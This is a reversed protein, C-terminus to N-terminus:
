GCTLMVGRIPGLSYTSESRGSRSIEQIWHLPRRAHPSSAIFRPEGVRRAKHSGGRHPPGSATGRAGSKGSSASFGAGLVPKQTWRFPRARSGLDPRSNRNQLVLFCTAFRYIEQTWHLPRVGSSSLSETPERPDLSPTLHRSSHDDGSLWPGSPASAQTYRVWNKPCLGVRRAKHSGGRHPPGSAGGQPEPLHARPDHGQGRKQRLKCLLWRWSCTEADLPLSSRTLWSRPPQEPKALGLLVDRIPLDRPDLSPTSRRLLVIIGHAGKPGLFPDLPTFFSRRWEVLTGIAGFGSARFRSLGPPAEFVEASTTPQGSVSSEPFLFRPWQHTAADESQRKM